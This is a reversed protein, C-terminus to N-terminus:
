TYLFIARVYLNQNVSSYLRINKGDDSTGVSIITNDWGASAAVLEPIVCLFTGGSFGADSPTIYKTNGAVISYSKYSTKVKIASDKATAINTNLQTFGEKIGTASAWFEDDTTAMIEDYTKVRKGKIKNWIASFLTAFTVKKTSAPSSEAEAFMSSDSLTTNEELKSIPIGAM